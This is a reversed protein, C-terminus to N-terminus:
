ASAAGDSGTAHIKRWPTSRKGPPTLLRRRSPASAISGRSHRDRQAPLSSCRSRSPFDSTQLRFDSAFSSAHLQFCLDFRSAQLTSPHRKDIRKCSGAIQKVEQKVSGSE